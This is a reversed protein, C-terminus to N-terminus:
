NRSGQRQTGSAMGLRQRTVADVIGNVNIGREKQFRAVAAATSSSYVGDQDVPIKAAALAKQVGKVDNGQMPPDSPKLLRPQGTMAESTEFWATVDNGNVTLWKPPASALHFKLRPPGSPTKDEVGLEKLVSLYEAFPIEVGLGPIADFGRVALDGEAMYGKSTLPSGKAEATLEVGVDRTDFGLDNIRFVPDLMALSALLQQSAAAKQQESAGDGDRVGAAAQVLARLARTSLNALGLDVVVRHPVKASDLLSPALELGEEGISFRIAAMDGDLGTAETAIEAKALSLLAEGGVARVTLGALAANGRITGFAAPMTPFIAGFRALRAEPADTRLADLADRLADLAEIKPGSSEGAFAIRDIAGTGSVQPLSFEVGKVEFDVPGSWGGDSKTALKSTMVLPGFSIWAGSKPQEIRASAITIATNRGRGTQAEIEAGARADTLTLKTEGGDAEVLMGESPLHIALEILKGGEKQGTRRIEIRDFTLRDFEPAQFSLRPKTIVAVLADGERRIEYPDSGAWKVMGNTSPELRAVFADIESRFHDLDPEAARLPSGLALLVALASTLRPPITM